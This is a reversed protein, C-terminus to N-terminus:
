EFNFNQEFITKVITNQYYYKIAKRTFESVNNNLKTILDLINKTEQDARFTYVPSKEKTQENNLNRIASQKPKFESTM